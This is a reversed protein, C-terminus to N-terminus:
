VVGVWPEMLVISFRRHQFLYRGIEVTALKALPKVCYTKMLIDDAAIFIRDSSNASAKIHGVRIRIEYASHM